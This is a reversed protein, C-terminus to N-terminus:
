FFYKDRFVHPKLASSTTQISLLVGSIGELSEGNKEEFINPM